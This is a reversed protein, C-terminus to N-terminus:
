LEEATWKAVIQVAKQYDDPSLSNLAPRVDKWALRAECTECFIGENDSIM